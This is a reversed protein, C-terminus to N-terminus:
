PRELTARRNAAAAPDALFRADIKGLRVLRARIAGETRKHERAMEAVGAGADFRKCLLEDESADWPKGASEPLNRKPGKNEGKRELARVALFLARVVKPNEYPSDPGFLEGTSPDVGGALAELIRIAESTEM